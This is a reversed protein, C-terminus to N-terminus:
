ELARGSGFGSRGPARHHPFARSARRHARIGGFRGHASSGFLLRSSWFCIRSGTTIQRRNQPRAPAKSCGGGPPLLRPTRHFRFGGFVSIGQTRGALAKPPLPPHKLFLLICLSFTCFFSFMVFCSIFSLIEEEESHLFPLRASPGRVCPHPLVYLFTAIMENM